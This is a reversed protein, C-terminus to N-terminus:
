GVAVLRLVRSEEPHMVPLAIGSTALVRGSLEAGDASWRGTMDAGVGRPAEEALRYRRDPDLGALRLPAPHQTSTAAVTAVVYWAESRDEGV